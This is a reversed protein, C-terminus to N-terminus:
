LRIELKLTDRMQYKKLVSVQVLSHGNPDVLFAQFVHIDSTLYLDHCTFIIERGEREISKLPPAWYIGESCRIAIKYDFYRGDTIRKRSIKLKAEELRFPENNVRGVVPNM